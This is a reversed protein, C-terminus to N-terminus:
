DYACVSNGIQKYCEALSEDKIFNKPFGMVRYCENITM